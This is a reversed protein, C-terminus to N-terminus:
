TPDQPWSSNGPKMRLLEKGALALWSRFFGKGIFVSYSSYRKSNVGKRNKLSYYVRGTM